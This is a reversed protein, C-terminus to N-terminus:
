AIVFFRKAHKLDRVNVHCSVARDRIPKPHNEFEFKPGPTAFCTTAQEVASSLVLTPDYPPDDYSTHNQWCDPFALFVASFDSSLELVDPLFSRSIDQSIFVQSFTWCSCHVQQLGTTNPRYGNCCIVWGVLIQNYVPRSSRPDHVHPYRKGTPEM